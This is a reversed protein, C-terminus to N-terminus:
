LYKVIKLLNEFYSEAKRREGATLFRWARSCNVTPVTGITPSSVTTTLQLCGIVGDRILKREGVSNDRHGDTMM